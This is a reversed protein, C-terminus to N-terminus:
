AHERMRRFLYFLSFLSSNFKKGQLDGILDGDSDKFSLPNVWYGVKSEWFQQEPRPPCKPTFAIFLASAVLLAVWITWFAAILAIRIRRWIPEKADLQLLDDKTLLKGVEVESNAPKKAGNDLSELVHSDM